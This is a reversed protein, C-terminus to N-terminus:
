GSLEVSLPAEMVGGPNVKALEVNEREIAVFGKIREKELQKLRM